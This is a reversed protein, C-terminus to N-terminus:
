ESIIISIDNDLTNCVLIDAKSDGNVDVIAIGKPHNGVMVAKQSAVGTKDMLYVYIKDSGNDSVVIDNIGDGNVDGTAIRNPINGAKFPSDKLMKFRGTGNGLLLSLGNIGSSNGGTSAPSNIIALDQEGDGNIDGISLGFPADGCPFPSGKADKFHGHGDCLLVSVNNGDINTTVVDEIGDGNVDAARLRQYPHDGTNYFSGPVKFLNTPDGYLIEFQDDAWNDTVLDLLTDGNFDGVSIGHVHPTVNVPFPSNHSEIFRGKGNGLLVTIYKKDHNAFALDFNGDSNFDGIAIDNPTPGAFFPSGDAPRFSGKGTGLLITASSDIESTIVLDAFTDNNFDAAEISGPSRGVKVRESLAPLSEKSTKGTQGCGTFFISLMAFRTMLHYVQSRKLKINPLELTYM